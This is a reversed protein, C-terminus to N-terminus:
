CRCKIICIPFTNFRFYCQDYNNRIQSMYCCIVNVTQIKKMLQFIRSLNPHTVCRSRCFQVLNVFGIIEIHGDGVFRGILVPIEPSWVCLDDTDPPLLVNILLICKFQDTHFTRARMEARLVCLM